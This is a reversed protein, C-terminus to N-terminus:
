CTLNKINIRINKLAIQPIIQTIQSLLNGHSFKEKPHNPNGHSNPM